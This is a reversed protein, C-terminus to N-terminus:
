FLARVGLQVRRPSQASLVQGFTPSGVFPDPQNFNARNFLNFVEIRAQVRVGSGLPLSKIGALNVNAFGPGEVINRGASGFSGFPPIAFASTDFWREPSPSDIAPDGVLNPRDNAGFGLSSRGTNSNDLEPLLAVTFPRGSQLTLIGSLQWGGAIAPLVGEGAPAPVEWVFGATLRHRVDYSSRGWEAERDYSDQPFNPDGASPFFGSADDRAHGLTYSAVGSLGRRARQEFRLQLSDYRSRGDSELVIIDNFAPNPRLNLPAASPQLPQNLDRGTILHSGKSGVYAIEITRSSGLQRQAGVSWQHLMPTQLDRQFTFGSQPSPVPFAAPFPDFLTLDVLGPVPFFFDLHFYPDSFYLGESPALAGQNYYLGYSGRVVTDGTSGPSWVLGARPAVNNRDTEFGARPMGQTGVQVLLGTAPDYVNARNEVDVPPSTLEYRLGASLTLHSGVRWNDQVFLGVNETRLRQPNDLRAGVTFIPLGLLLDALANGTYSPQSSFALQGRAQVDRFAEQGVARLDFGGRLLHAGRSWTVTDTLQFANTTSAQPNNYEHGLPSYGTVTIFSLGWDRPNASLEPLGVERNLSVGANEPRVGASVRTFGFRAENLLSPTLVSVGGVVLNQARRALDAGFGPVLSFAPGSFPEHLRRDSFSYRATLDFTGSLPRDIRVDFQDVEDTQNPSSVFNALPVDRNPLPYLAAIARGIPNQFFAPIRDGPFPTGTLPNRPVPLATGAFEGSREAATPVNTVQTIGETLRTGEYDGFFFLRDKVIPGGLSVGYQGRRYDPAPEDRPAFFNRADFAGSRFFGYATGSVDNSGSKLVVSVHGAAYRGISAEHAGTQVEFERIADVAPRLAVTNLKPDVNDVGDLQFGNADERAGAVTFAFDGRVSSASGQAAPATGPALLSLELFNRGDLPLDRVQREDVITGLAATEHRVSALPAAVLVESALPGIELRVDARRQQHVVLRVDAVSVRYGAAEIRLRYDGPPLLSIAYRGEADSLVTRSANTTVDVATIQAEAVAAGTADTVVGRIAGRDAQAAAPAALAAIAAVFLATRRVRVIFARAGSRSAGRTPIAM